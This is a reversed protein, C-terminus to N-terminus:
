WLSGSIIVMFQWKYDGGSVGLKAKGKTIPGDTIWNYARGFLRENLNAVNSYNLLM